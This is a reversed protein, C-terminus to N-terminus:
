EKPCSIPYPQGGHNQLGNADGKRPGEYIRTFNKIFDNSHMLNPMGGKRRYVVWGEVVGMVRVVYGTAIKNWRQRPGITPECDPCFMGEPILHDCVTRSM